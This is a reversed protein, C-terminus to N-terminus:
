WWGFLGRLGSTGSNPGFRALIDDVRRQGDPNDPDLFEGPQMQAIIEARTWGTAREIKDIVQKPWERRHYKQPGGRPKHGGGREREEADAEEPSAPAVARPVFLIAFRPDYLHDEFEKSAVRLMEKAFGADSTAGRKNGGVLLVADRERDLAYAIRLPHRRTLVRLERIRGQLQSAYPHGLNMPNGRLLGIVYNALGADFDSLADYWETFRRVAIIRGAM